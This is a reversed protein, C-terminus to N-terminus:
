YEMECVFQLDTLPTFNPGGSSQTSAVGAPVRKKEYLKELEPSVAPVRRVYFRVVGNDRDVVIESIMKKILLKKEEIPANEFKEEFNLIFKAVIESIKAPEIQRENVLSLSQLRVNLLGKEEELAKLREFLSQIAGGNEIANTIHKTKQECEAILSKIREIEDRTSTPAAELLKTLQAEIEAVLNPQILVDKIAKIAFEELMSKSIGLHSCIGKNKWGGDIYKEYKKNKVSSSCGQFPFGCRSCRLIGTLLFRGKYSYGNYKKKRDENVGTNAKTWIEKTIIADHANEEIVWDKAENRWHPYSVNHKLDKGKQQAQIKSMSNRNYIRAGYYTPNEVITKITGSSWKQDFNRWRGRKACPVCQRNLAQAILFCGLGESRQRFIEQVVKVEEPDGIAWRVKEQGSISWEGTVLERV